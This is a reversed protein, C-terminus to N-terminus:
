NVAGFKTRVKKHVAQFNADKSLNAVAYAVRSPIAMLHSRANSLTNM